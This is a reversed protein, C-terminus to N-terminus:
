YRKHWQPRQHLYKAAELDSATQKLTTLVENLSEEDLDLSNIKKIMTDIDKEMDSIQLQLTKLFKDLAM